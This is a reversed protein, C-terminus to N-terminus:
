PEGRHKRAVREREERDGGGGATQGLGPPTLYKATQLSEAWRGVIWVAEEETQLVRRYSVGCDAEIQGKRYGSRVSTHESQTGMM